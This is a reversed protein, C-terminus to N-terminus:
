IEYERIECNQPRPRWRIGNRRGELCGSIVRIIGGHCVILVNDYDNKGLEELFSRVRKVADKVREVGKPGPIIEPLAWYMSMRAGLHKYPKAEYPGFDFEIIRDDIKLEEESVGSVIMATKRARILSSSFVADFKIDKLKERVEQAQSIGVEDLPEDSRGQMLMLKNLRTQGHRIVYIKM